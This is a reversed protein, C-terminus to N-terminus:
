GPCHASIVIKSAPLIMSWAVYSLGWWYEVPTSYTSTFPLGTSSRPRCVWARGPAIRYPCPFRYRFPICVSCVSRRVPGCTVNPTEHFNGFHFRQRYRDRQPRRHRVGHPEDRMAIVQDNADSGRVPEGAFAERQAVVSAFGHYREDVRDEAGHEFACVRE